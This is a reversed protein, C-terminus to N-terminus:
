LLARMEVLRSSCAPSSLVRMKREAPISNTHILQASLASPVAHRLIARPFSSIKRTTGFPSDPLSDTKPVGKESFVTISLVCIEEKIGDGACMAVKSHVFRAYQSRDGGMFDSM